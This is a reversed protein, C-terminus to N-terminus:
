RWFLHFLFNGAQDPMKIIMIQDNKSIDHQLKSLCNKKQHGFVKYSQDSENSNVMSSM